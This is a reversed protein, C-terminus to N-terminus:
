CVIGWDKGKGFYIYDGYCFGSVVCLELWVESGGECLGIRSVPDRTLVFNGFSKEM